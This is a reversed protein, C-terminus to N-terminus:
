DLNSRTFLTQLEESKRHRRYRSLKYGMYLGLAAPSSGGIVAAAIEFVLFM